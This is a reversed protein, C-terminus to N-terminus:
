GRGLSAARRRRESAPAAQLTLLDGLSRLAREARGIEILELLARATAEADGLARHRASNAIGFQASLTDLDYRRLAPLLRRALKRTCVVPGAWDPLGHAALARRVFREDFQANHAVFVTSPRGGAWDAFDRIARELPPAGDILSRDIGTLATIRSPIPRGPDVLTDFRDVRQLGSIRVAGIELITCADVSLGTTELDVVIWEVRDLPLAASAGAALSPLAALDIREPLLDARLGLVPAVLRRALQPGPRSTLAFLRRALEDLPLAQGQAGIRDLARRWPPAAVPVPQPLTVSRSSVTPEVIELAKSVEAEDPVDPLVPSAPV